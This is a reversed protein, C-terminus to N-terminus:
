SKPGNAYIGGSMLNVSEERGKGITALRCWIEGEVFKGRMSNRERQTRWALKSLFDVNTEPILKEPTCIKNWAITHLKKQDKKEGWFFQRNIKELEEVVSNLIKVTQMSYFPIASTITQTLMTKAAKSLIKAKWGILKRRVKDVIYSFTKSNLSKYPLPIGLYNDLDAMLPILLKSQREPVSEAKCQTICFAKIKDDFSCFQAM